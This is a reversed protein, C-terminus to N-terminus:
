YQEKTPVFIDNGVKIFLYILAKYLLLPSIKYFSLPSNDFLNRM